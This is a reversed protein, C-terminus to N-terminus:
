TSNDIARQMRMYLIGAAEMEFQKADRNKGQKRCVEALNRLALATAAYNTECRERYAAVADKHLGEAVAWDEKLEYIEAIEELCQAYEFGSTGYKKGIM